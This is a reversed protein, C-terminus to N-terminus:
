LFYWCFCFSFTFEFITISKRETYIYGFSESMEALSLGDSDQLILIATSVVLPHTSRNTIIGRALCLTQKLKVQNQLERTQNSRKWTWSVSIEGDGWSHSATLSTPGGQSCADAAILCISATLMTKLYVGHYLSVKM